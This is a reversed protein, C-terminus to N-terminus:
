CDAYKQTGCSCLHVSVGQVIKYVAGKSAEVFPVPAARYVMRVEEDRVEDRKVLARIM